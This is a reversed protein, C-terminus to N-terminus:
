YVQRLRRIMFEHVAGGDSPREIRIRVTSNSFGRLETVLEQFSMNTTWKEDVAILRDGVKLGAGEGPSGLQVATFFYTKGTVSLSAGIGFGKDPDLVVEKEKTRSIDCGSFTTIMMTVLLLQRAKMDEPIM